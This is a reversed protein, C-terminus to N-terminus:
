IKERNEKSLLFSPKHKKISRIQASNIGIETQEDLMISKLGDILAKNQHYKVCSLKRLYELVLDEETGSNDSLAKAETKLIERKTNNTSGNLGFTTIVITAM